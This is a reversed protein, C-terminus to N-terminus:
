CSIPPAYATPCSSQFSTPTPRSQSFNAHLWCSQAATWARRSPLPGENQQGMPEADMTPSVPGYAAYTPQWPSPHCLENSSARSFICLAHIDHKTFHLGPALRVMSARAGLGLHLSARGPSISAGQLNHVEQHSPGLPTICILGPLSCCIFSDM